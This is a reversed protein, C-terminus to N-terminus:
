NDKTYDDNEDDEYYFTWRSDKDEKYLGGKEFSSPLEEHYQDENISIYLGALLLMSLGIISIFIPNSYEKSSNFFYSEGYREVYFDGRTTVNNSIFETREGDITENFKQQTENNYKTFEVTPTVQPEIGPIPSIDPNEYEENEIIENLEEETYTENEIVDSKEVLMPAQPVILGVGVLVIGSIFLLHALYFLVRKKTM